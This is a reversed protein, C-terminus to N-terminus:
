ASDLLPMDAWLEHYVVGTGRKIEPNNVKVTM